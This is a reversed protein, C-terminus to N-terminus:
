TLGPVALGDQDGAAAPVTALVPATDRPKHACYCWMSTNPAVAVIRGADQDARRANDLCDKHRNAACPPCIM